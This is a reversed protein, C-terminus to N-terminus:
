GPSATNARDVDSSSPACIPDESLEGVTARQNEQRQKWRAFAEGDLTVLAGIYPRRDGILRV